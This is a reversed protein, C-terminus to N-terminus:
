GDGPGTIPLTIQFRSGRGSRSEVGIRGGHAEVIRRAIPLGLGMGRAKTTVYPEFVRQLLEAPVGDGTDEATLMLSDERASASVTLTGGRPMAELGNVMLNMLVRKMQDKDLRAPPLDPPVQLVIRVGRADADAQLLAPV